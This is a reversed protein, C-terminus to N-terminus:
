QFLCQLGPREVLDGHRVDRVAAVDLPLGEVIMELINEIQDGPGVAPIGLVEDGFVAQFVIGPVFQDDLQQVKEVLLFPVEYQGGVVRFAMVVQDSIQLLDDAVLDPICDVPLGAVGHRGDVAIKDRCEVGVGEDARDHVPDAVAHLLDGGLDDAPQVNKDAALELLRQVSERFFPLLQASSFSLPDLHVSM